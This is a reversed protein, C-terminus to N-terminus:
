KNKSENKICTYFSSSYHLTVAFPDGFQCHNRRKKIRNIDSITCLIKGKITSMWIKLQYMSVLTNKKKNKTYKEIKIIKCHILM